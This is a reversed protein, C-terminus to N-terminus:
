KLHHQLYYVYEHGVLRSHQAGFDDTVEKQGSRSGDQPVAQSHRLLLMYHVWRAGQSM